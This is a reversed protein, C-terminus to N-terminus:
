WYCLCGGDTHIPLIADLNGQEEALQIFAPLAAAEDLQM